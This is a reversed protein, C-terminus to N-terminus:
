AEKKGGNSELLERMRPSRVERVARLELGREDTGTPLVVGPRLRLPTDFKRWSSAVVYQPRQFRRKTEVVGPWVRELARAMRLRGDGQYLSDTNGGSVVMTRMKYALFTNFLVTCWGAALVQLCLDTDDNYVLRWRQPISNLVLSCSYVHCNTVIPRPRGGGGGIAFMTYNIGAVAVNEYRDCFDEPWWATWLGLQKKAIVLDLKDALEQRQEETDFCLVLTIRKPEPEFEPMGVYHAAEDHDRIETAPRTVFLLNALMAEDYGTGLLQGLDALEGLMETLARDDVEALQGIQNDGALVKLALPDEPGVDLRIVPVTEVGLRRAAEVVGHGALITGDRAAVINRYLGHQRISAEIHALQDEPHRRYNRPHPRLDAVATPV